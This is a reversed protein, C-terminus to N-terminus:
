MPGAESDEPRGNMVRECEARNRFFVVLCGAIFLVCLAKLVFLGWPRYWAGTQTEIVDSIGFVFLTVAFVLFARKLSTQRRLALFLFWSAGAMWIVAEIRAGKARATEIM